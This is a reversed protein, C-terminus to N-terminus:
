TVVAEIVSVRGNEEVGLVTTLVLYALGASQPTSARLYEVGNMTERRVAHGEKTMLREFAPATQRNLEATLVHDIGLTTGGVSLQTFSAAGDSGIHSTLFVVFSGDGPRKRLFKEARGVVDRVPLTETEENAGSATLARFLAVLAAVMVVAPILLLASSDM